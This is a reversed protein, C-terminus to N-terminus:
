SLFGGHRRGTEHKYESLVAKRVSESNRLGLGHFLEFLLVFFARFNGRDCNPGIVCKDFVKGPVGNGDFRTSLCLTSVAM